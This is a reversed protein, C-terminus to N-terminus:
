RSTLVEWVVVSAITGGPGPGSPCALWESSDNGRRIVNEKM